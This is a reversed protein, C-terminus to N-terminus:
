ENTTPHADIYQIAQNMLMSQSDIYGVTHTTINNFGVRHGDYGNIVVAVLKICVTAFVVWTPEAIVDFAIISMMASIISMRVFRKGFTINRMTDPTVGLVARSRVNKGLTMIREPTLKIRKIANAKKIAKKQGSTLNPLANVEDKGLTVYKEIYVEYTICVVALYHMRMRRLEKDAYYNCFEDMRTLMSAEIKEKLTEFREVSKKYAETAYGASIGGDACCVYMGYSVFLLIFFDLGLDALSRITVLRIDTTTVVIVAFLTLAIVLTRAGGFIHQSLRKKEPLRELESM